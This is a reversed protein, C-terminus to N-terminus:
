IIEVTDAALTGFTSGFGIGGSTYLSSSGSATALTSGSSTEIVDVSITGGGSTTSIEWTYWTNESWSVSATDLETFEGADKEFLKVLENAGDIQVYYGNDTDQAFFYFGCNRVLGEPDSKTSQIYVRITDGASPDRDLGSQSIINRRTTDSSGTSKLSYSGSQVPTNTNAAFYSTDDTYESLDGDEFGDVMETSSIPVTESEGSAGNNGAADAATELTLTLDGSSASATYTGSYTYPGTGSESFDSETMSGSEAGTVDVLIDTVQEDADFSVDIDTM